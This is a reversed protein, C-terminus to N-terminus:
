THEMSKVNTHVSSSGRIGTCQSPDNKGRGTEFEQTEEQVTLVRARILGVCENM